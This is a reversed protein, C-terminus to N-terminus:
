EEIDAFDDEPNSSEDVGPQTRTENVKNGEQAILSNIDVDDKERNQDLWAIEQEKDEDSLKDGWLLEVYKRTSIQGAVWASGLIQIENEFSPNAFENYKINVPYDYVTIANTDMYEKLILSLNVIKKIMKTESCIINNRTMTTVKEKERQADANDKKAIDIGMTAPSLLGTLIFDLKSKAAMSYQDINLQPQTTIIDDSKSAGDGDTASSKQMFQRNYVKPMGTQGNPGRQVIEPNYYEVPTSVRVTQSEQSLIQDLDDFLDIKGAYISRGYKPNLPDYFYKSPVGLVEDLGEICTAETPLSALEPICEFDVPEITNNKKLRYLAYEIYSNGNARYRTELLVYDKNHKDKYYSKYVIGFLVGCKIIFEVDLAEYFEWLPYKSLATNFNPKWAGWGEACTLPRTQQTLKINFDNEEATQNWIDTKENDVNKGEGVTVGPVGIVNSITTVIANPIGSHVRKIDCEASSLSWFFNRKNRNYIPNNAFGKSQKETYYNLLENGDGIFWVKNAEVESKKIEEDDSIFTLRDDNPDSEKELGLFKMIKSRIWDKISMAM